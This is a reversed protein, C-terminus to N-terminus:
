FVWIDVIASASCNLDITLNKKSNTAQSEWVAINAKPLTLFFGRYERGLKHSVNNVKSSDLSINTLLIGDILPCALIPTLVEEVNGQFKSTAEDELNVKKFSKTMITVTTTFMLLRALTGLM